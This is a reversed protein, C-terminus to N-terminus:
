SIPAAGIRRWDQGASRRFRITTSLGGSLLGHRQRVCPAERADLTRGHGFLDQALQALRDDLTADRLALREALDGQRTREAGPAARHALRDALEHLLPEDVVLRM